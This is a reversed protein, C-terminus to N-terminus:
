DEKIEKKKRRVKENEKIRNIRRFRVYNYLDIMVLLPSLILFVTIAFSLVILSFILRIKSEEGKEGKKYSITDNEIDLSM